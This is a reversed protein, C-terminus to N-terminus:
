KHFNQGSTLDGPVDTASAPASLPVIPLDDIVMYCLIALDMYAFLHFLSFPLFDERLDIITRMSFLRQIGVQYIQLRNQM